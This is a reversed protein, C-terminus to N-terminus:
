VPSWAAFTGEGIPVSVSGEDIGHVYIFGNNDSYV